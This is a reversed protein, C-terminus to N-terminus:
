NDELRKSTLDLPGVVVREDHRAVGGLLARRRGANTAVHVRVRPADLEAGVFDKRDRRELVDCNGDIEDLEAADKGLRQRGDGCHQAGVRVVRHLVEDVRRRLSGSHLVDREHELLQGLELLQRWVHLHRLDVALAVWNGVSDRTAPPRQDRGVLLLEADLQTPELGALAREVEEVVYAISVSPEHCVGFVVAALLVAVRIGAVARGAWRRM